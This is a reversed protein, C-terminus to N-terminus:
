VTLHITLGGLVCVHSYINEVCITDIHLMSYIFGYIRLHTCITTDVLFTSWWPPWITMHIYVLTRVCPYIHTHIEFCGDFCGNLLFTLIHVWTYWMRSPIMSIETCIIMETVTYKTKHSLCRMQTVNHGFPVRMCWHLYEFGYCKPSLVQFLITSHM